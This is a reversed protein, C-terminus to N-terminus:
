ESYVVAAKQLARQEVSSRYEYRFRENEQRLHEKERRLRECEKRLEEVELVREVVASIIDNIPAANVIIKEWAGAEGIPLWLDGYVRQNEEPTFVIYRGQRSVRKREYVLM